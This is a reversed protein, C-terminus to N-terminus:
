FSVAKWHKDRLQIVTAEQSSRGDTGSSNPPEIQRDPIVYLKLMHRINM